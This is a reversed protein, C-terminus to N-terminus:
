IDKIPNNVRFVSNDSKPPQGVSKAWLAPNALHCIQMGFIDIEACINQYIKYRNPIKLPWKPINKSTKTIQVDPL